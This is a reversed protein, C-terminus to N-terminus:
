LSPKKDDYYKRTVHCYNPHQEILRQEAYYRIFPRFLLEAHTYRIRDIPYAHMHRLRVPVYRHQRRPGWPEEQLLWPLEHLQFRLQLFDLAGSLLWRYRKSRQEDWSWPTGHLTLEKLSHHLPPVVTWNVHIYRLTNLLVNLETVNKPPTSLARYIRQFAMLLRVFTHSQTMWTPTTHWTPYNSYGHAASSHDAIMRHNRTTWNIPRVLIPVVQRPVVFYLVGRRQLRNIEDLM